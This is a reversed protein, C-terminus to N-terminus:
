CFNSSLIALFIFVISSFTCDALCFIIKNKISGAELFFCYISSFDLSLELFENLGFIKDIKVLLFMFLDSILM